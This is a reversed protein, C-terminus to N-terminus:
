RVREPLERSVFQWIYHACGELVGAGTMIHLCDSAVPADPRLLAPHVIPLFHIDPFRLSALESGLEDGRHEGLEVPLGDVRRGDLLKQVQVARMGMLTGCGCFVIVNETGNAPLSADALGSLLTTTCHGGTSVVPEGYRLSAPVLLSKRVYFSPSYSQFMEESFLSRLEDAGASSGRERENRSQKDHVAGCVAGGQRSAHGDPPLDGAAHRRHQVRARQISLAPLLPSSPDLYLHPFLLYPLSFRYGQHLRHLNALSLKTRYRASSIIFPVVASIVGGGASGYTAQHHADLAVAVAVQSYLRYLSM